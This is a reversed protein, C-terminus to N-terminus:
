ASLAKAVDVGDADVAVGDVAGVAVTLLQRYIFDTVRGNPDRKAELLVQPDLLAETSARLLGQPQEVDILLREVSRGPVVAVTAFGRPGDIGPQATCM